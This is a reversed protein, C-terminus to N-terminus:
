VINWFIHMHNSNTKSQNIHTIMCERSKGVSKLTAWSVSRLIPYCKHTTEKWSWKTNNYIYSIFNVEWAVHVRETWYMQATYQVLLWTVSTTSCWPQVYVYIAWTRATSPCLLTAARQLCEAQRPLTQRISSLGKLINYFRYPSETLVFKSCILYLKRTFSQNQMFLVCKWMSFTKCNHRNLNQQAKYLDFKGMDKQIVESASSCDNGWHWHLLGRSYPCMCCTASCSHIVCGCFCRRTNGIHQVERPTDTPVLWHLVFVLSQLCARM